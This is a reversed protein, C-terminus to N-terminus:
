IQIQTFHLFNQTFFPEQFIFLTATESLSAVSLAIPIIAFIILGGIIGTVVMLVMARKSDAKAEEMKRAGIDKGIIIGASASVAYCLVTGFSRVVAVVSNAAVVDSSLHGLIATYM